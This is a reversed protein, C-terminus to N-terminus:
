RGQYGRRRVLFFVCGCVGVNQNVALLSRGIMEKESDLALRFSLVNAGVKCLFVTQAPFLYARASLPGSSLGRVCGDESAAWVGPGCRGRACRPVCLGLGRLRARGRRQGM